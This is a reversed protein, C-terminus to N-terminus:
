GIPGILEKLAETMTQAYHAADTVEFKYRAPESRGPRWRTRGQDDCEVQV